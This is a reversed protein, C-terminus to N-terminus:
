TRLRRKRKGRSPVGRRRTGRRRVRAEALWSCCSNGAAEAAFGAISGSGARAEAAEAAAVASASMGLGAAVVAVARGVAAASGAAVGAAVAITGAAESRGTHVGVWDLLHRALGLGAHQTVTFMERKGWLIACRRKWSRLRQRWIAGGRQRWFPRSRDAARGAPRPLRLRQHSSASETVRM